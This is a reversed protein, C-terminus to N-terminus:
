AIAIESRLVLKLKELLRECPERVGERTPGIWAVLEVGRRGPWTVLLAAEWLDEIQLHHDVVELNAVRSKGYRPSRDDAAFEQMRAERRLADCALRLGKVEAVVAETAPGHDFIRDIREEMEAALSELKYGVPSQPKTKKSKM